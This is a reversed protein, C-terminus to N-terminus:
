KKGRLHAPVWPCRDWSSIDYCDTVPLLQEEIFFYELAVTPDGDLEVDWAYGYDQLPCEDRSTLGILTGTQGVLSTDDGRRVWLIKVRQGVDLYSASM